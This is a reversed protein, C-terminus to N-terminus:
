VHLLVLFHKTSSMQIELQKVLAIQKLLTDLVETKIDQMELSAVNCVFRCDKWVVEVKCAFNNTDNM